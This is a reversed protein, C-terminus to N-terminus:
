RKVIHTIGFADPKRILDDGLLEIFSLEVLYQVECGPEMHAAATAGEPDSFTVHIHPEYDIVIGQMSGIEIPMELTVYENTPDDSVTKIRHYTLKRASGIGSTIIAKKIDLRRMESEISELILEGKDLQMLVHRGYETGVHTNM